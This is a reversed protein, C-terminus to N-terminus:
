FTVKQEKVEVPQPKADIVESALRDAIRAELNNLVQMEDPTLTLSVSGECNVTRLYGEAYGISPDPDAIPAFYEGQHRFRSQSNFRTFQMLTLGHETKITTTPKGKM